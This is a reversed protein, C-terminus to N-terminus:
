LRLGYKRNRKEVIKVLHPCNVKEVKLVRERDSSRLRRMKTMTGDSMKWAYSADLATAPQEKKQHLDDRPVHFPTANKSAAFRRRTMELRPKALAIPRYRALSFVSAEKFCNRTWRSDTSANGINSDSRVGARNCGGFHNDDVVM